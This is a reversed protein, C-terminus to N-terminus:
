EIGPVSPINFTLGIMGVGSPAPMKKSAFPGPAFATEGAFVIKPLDFYSSVEASFPIKMPKVMGNMSLEADMIFVGSVDREFGKSKLTFVDGQLRDSRFATAIDIGQRIQPNELAERSMFAHHLDAYLYFHSRELQEPDFAADIKWSVVPIRPGGDQSFMVQSEQRVPKWMPVDQQALAPTAALALIVPLMRRLTADRNFLHHKFAAAAHLLILALLTWAGWEHVEFLLNALTENQTTLNPLAFLEFFRVERGAASSMMWGVLPMALLLGYLALHAGKAAAKELPPAPLLQPRKSYLHWGIRTLVLTLILVGLSKHRNYLTLKISLDEVGTMYLGLSLTLLVLLAMGWHITKSIAGYADPTNKLM